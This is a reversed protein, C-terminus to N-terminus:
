DSTGNKSEPRQVHQKRRRSWKDMHRDARTALGVYDRCSGHVHGKRMSARGVGIWMGAGQSNM